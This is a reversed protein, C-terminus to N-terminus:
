YLFNHIGCQTKALGRWRGARLDEGARIRDTCTSCGISAYGVAELPHRPLNRAAFERDIRNRPWGALPNIKIRGEADSEFVPLAAWAEGHYRKRGSVWADFDALGRALPAVKRAACCRDPDSRWLSGAPDEAALEHRDPTLSRVDELGLGAILRDRYRL